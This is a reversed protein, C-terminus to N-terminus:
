ANDRNIEAQTLIRKPKNDGYDGPYEVGCCEFHAARFNEETFIDRGCKPCITDKMYNM